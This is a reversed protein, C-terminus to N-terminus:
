FYGMFGFIKMQLAYLHVVQSAESVSPFVTLHIEHLHPLIVDNLHALMIPFLDYIMFLSWSEPKFLLYAAVLSVILCLFCIKLHSVLVCMRTCLCM